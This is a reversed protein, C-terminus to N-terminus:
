GDNQSKSVCDALKTHHQHNAAAQGTGGPYQGDGDILVDLRQVVRAGMSEGRQHHHEGQRYQHPEVRDIAPEAPCSCSRSGLLTERAIARRGSPPPIRRVDVSDLTIQVTAGVPIHLENATTIHQDPYEFEWWWHHGIVHVQIDQAVAAPPAVAFMTQAMAVFDAGDLLVIALFPVLAWALKGYLQPPIVKKGGRDRDRIFIWIFAGIILVFVSLTEILIEWYLKAEHGAILSAPNLFTPSSPACGSLVLGLGILFAIKHHIKM